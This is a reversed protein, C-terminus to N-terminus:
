KCLCNYKLSSLKVYNCLTFKLFCNKKLCNLKAYTCKLEIQGMSLARDHAVVGPWLPGPFSSLLSTSRMRWLELM